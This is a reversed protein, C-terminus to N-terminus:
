GRCTGHHLHYVWFSDAMFACLRIACISPGLQAGMFGRPIPHGTAAAAIRIASLTPAAILTEVGGRFRGLTVVIAVIALLDFEPQLWGAAAMLLIASNAMPHSNRSAM